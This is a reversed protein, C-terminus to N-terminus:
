CYLYRKISHKPTKAFEQPMIEFGSLKSYNPLVGNVREISRSIMAHIDVNNNEYEERKDEDVHVLAILKESRSVVISEGIGEELNLLSEIEEPYINQGSKGLIMTKCRGKLYINGDKDICGMDGTHMWGDETFAEKTAEENKYYGIMCADGRLLIEGPVSTPDPSEIKIEMRDVLKGCSQAKFKNWPAYAVLPGCETMGYGSLYPIKLDMLCKEVELNIAAGGSIISKLNGGFANLISSRIKRKILGGMIPFRWLAKVLRSSVVPRIKGEYIKELILPVVLIIIPKCEKFAQMLTNMNLRTVFYVHSGGAVQYILEEMMGFMHALPLMSVLNIGPHCEINEMSFMVNTSLSRYTLMVGKPNSTTGSTYNILALDDLNDDQYHVHEPGYGNPYRKEFEYNLREFAARYEDTKAFVIGYDKMSIIAKVNPMNEPNIKKEVIPGVLLIQADSHNVLKEIDAGTFDPLISVAVAGYAFTGLLGIAWNSCNAGCLAIKDLKRVGVMEYYLNLRAVEAAMEGYTYTVDSGYDTFAPNNWGERVSKNIYSFM